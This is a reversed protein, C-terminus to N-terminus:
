RPFNLAFLGFFALRAVILSVAVLRRAFVFSNFGPLSAM